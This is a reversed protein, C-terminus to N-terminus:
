FFGFFTHSEPTDGKERRAQGACFASLLDNDPTSMRYYHMWMEYGYWGDSYATEMPSPSDSSETPM